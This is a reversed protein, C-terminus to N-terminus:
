PNKSFTDGSPVLCSVTLPQINREARAPKLMTGPKIASATAGPSSDTSYSKVSLTKVFTASFLPKPPSPCAM